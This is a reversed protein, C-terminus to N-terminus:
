CGRKVLWSVGDPADQRPKKKYKQAETWNMWGRLKAREREREIIRRARTFGLSNGETNNEPTNDLTARVLFSRFPLGVESAYKQVVRQAMTPGTRAVISANAWGYYGGHKNIYERENHLAKQLIKRLLEHGAPARIFRIELALEKRPNPLGFVPQVPSTKAPKVKGLPDPWVDIDVYAGGLEHLVFYRFLDACSAHSGYHREYNFIEGILSGRVLEDVHRLEVGPVPPEEVQGSTWLVCHWGLKQWARLYKERSKKWPEIFWCLHLIDNCQSWAGGVLEFERVLADEATQPVHQNKRHWAFSPVCLGEKAGINQARSVLPHVERYANKLYTDGVKVDWTTLVQPWKLDPWRDSWMAFSWPHFWVRTRAEYLEGSKERNYGTVSHVVPDSRFREAWEFWLLADRTLVIDEEVHLHYGAGNELANSLVFMTADNCGM